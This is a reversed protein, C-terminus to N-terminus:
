ILIFEFISRGYQLNSDGSTTDPKVIAYLKGDCEFITNLKVKDYKPKIFFLQLSKFKKILSKM